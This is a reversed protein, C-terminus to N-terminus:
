GSIRSLVAHIWGAMGARLPLAPSSADTGVHLRPEGGGVLKRLVLLGTIARDIEALMEDRDGRISQAPVAFCDAKDLPADHM